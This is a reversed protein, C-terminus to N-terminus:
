GALLVSAQQMLGAMTEAAKQANAVRVEAVAQRVRAQAEAGGFRGSLLVSHLSADREASCDVIVDLVTDRERPTNCADLLAETLQVRVDLECSNEFIAVPCSMLYAVDSQSAQWLRAVFRAARVKGARLCLIIAFWRRAAVLARLLTEEHWACADHVSRFSSLLDRVSRPDDLSQMIVLQPLQPLDSFRGM